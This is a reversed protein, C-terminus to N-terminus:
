FRILWYGMLAKPSVTDSAGYISNGNGANFEIDAAYSTDPMVQLSAKENVFRNWHLVGYDLGLTDM